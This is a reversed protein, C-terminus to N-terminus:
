RPLRALITLSAFIAEGTGITAFALGSAIPPHGTAFTAQSTSLLAVEVLVCDVGRDKEYNTTDSGQM